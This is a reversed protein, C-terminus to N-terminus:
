MGVSVKLLSYSVGLSMATAAAFEAVKIHVWFPHMIPMSSGAMYYAWSKYPKNALSAYGLLLDNTGRLHLVELHHSQPSAEWTLNHWFQNLPLEVAGMKTPLTEM